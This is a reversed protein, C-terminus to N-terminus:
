ASGCAQAVLAARTRTGTKAFVSKLHDQVTYESLHLGTAIERTSRGEALLRVLEGERTSLAFAREHVALREAPTAPTLTVAIRPEGGGGLREARATLWVGAGVHVRTMPEHEDAGAEVALLQAATNLVVAPVPDRGESAPLLRQLWTTARETDGLVRLGDDLVIVGAGEVPGCPAADLAHRQVRRLESTVDARVEDLLALDDRTFAGGCRWLDLFAWCGQADRHVATLLDTVGLDALTAHFRQEAEPATGLRSTGTVRTWRLPGTLYRARVVEPLHATVPVVAHPAAGVTTVPDTLVWVHHDFGLHRRLVDLVAERLATPDQARAAARSVADVVRSAM